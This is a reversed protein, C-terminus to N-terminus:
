TGTRRRDGNAGTPPPVCLVITLWSWGATALHAACLRSLRPILGQRGGSTQAAEARITLAHLAAVQDLLSQSPM